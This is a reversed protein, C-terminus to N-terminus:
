AIRSLGRKAFVENIGELLLAQVTTDERVAILKLQQFAEAELYATANRKGERTKAVVHKRADAMPAVAPEPGPTPKAPPASFLSARKMM